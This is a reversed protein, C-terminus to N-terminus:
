KGGAHLKDAAESGQATVTDQQKADGQNQQANQNLFDVNKQLTALPTAGGTFAASFGVASNYVLNLKTMYGSSTTANGSAIAYQLTIYLCNPDRDFNKLAAVEDVVKGLAVQDQSNLPTNAEQIIGISCVDLAKMTQTTVPVATVAQPVSKSILLWVIFGVGVLVIFVIAAIVIYRKKHSVKSGSGIPQLTPTIDDNM